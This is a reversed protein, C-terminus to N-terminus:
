HLEIRPKGAAIFGALSEGAARIGDAKSDPLLDSLQKIVASYKGIMTTYSRHAPNEKTIDYGNGGPATIIAGTENIDAQLEKLTVAMFAANQILNGCMSQKDKPIDKFIRKLKREEAKILEDKTKEPM